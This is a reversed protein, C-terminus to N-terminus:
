KLRFFPTDLRLPVSIDFKSYIFYIEQFVQFMRWRDTGFQDDLAKTSLTEADDMRKLFQKAAIYGNLLRQDRSSDELSRGSNYIHKAIDPRVWSKNYEDKPLKNAATVFQDVELKDLSEVLRAVECFKEAIDEQFLWLDM